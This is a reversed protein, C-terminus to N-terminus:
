VFWGWTAAAASRLPQTIGAAPLCLRAAGSFRRGSVKHAQPRKSEYKKQFVARANRVVKACLNPPLKILNAQHSHTPFCQRPFISSEGPFRCSVQPKSPPCPSPTSSCPSCPRGEAAAISQWPEDLGLSPPQTTTAPSSHVGTQGWSGGAHSVVEEEEWFPQLCPKAACPSGQLVM